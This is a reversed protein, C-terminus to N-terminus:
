RNEFEEFPASHGCIPCLEWGRHEGSYYYHYGCGKCSMDYRPNSILDHYVKKSYQDKEPHTNYDLGEHMGHELGKLHLFEHVLQSRRLSSSHSRWEQTVTIKPIGNMNVWIDPWSKKSDSWALYVKQVGSWPLLVNRLFAVDGKPINM